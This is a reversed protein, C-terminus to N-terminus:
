FGYKKAIKAKKVIRQRRIVAYPSPNSVKKIAQEIWRRIQAKTAENSM